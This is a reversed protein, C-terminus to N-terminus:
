SIWPVSSADDVVQLAHALDLDVELRIRVDVVSSVAAEAGNQEIRLMLAELPELGCAADGDGKVVHLGQLGMGQHFGHFALRIEAVKGQACLDVTDDICDLAGELALGLLLASWLVNHGSEDYLRSCCVCSHVSTVFVVINLM